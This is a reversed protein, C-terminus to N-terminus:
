IHKIGILGEVLGGVQQQFNNLKMDGPLTIMESATSLISSILPALDNQPLAPIIENVITSKSLFAPYRGDPGKENGPIVVTAAQAQTKGQGVGTITTPNNKDLYARLRGDKVASALWLSISAGTDFVVRVPRNNDGHLDLFLYLSVGSTNDIVTTHEQEKLGDMFEIESLAVSAPLDKRTYPIGAVMITDTDQKGIGGTSTFKDLARPNIDISKPVNEEPVIYTHYGLSTHQPLHHSAQALAGVLQEALLQGEQTLPCDLPKNVDPEPLLM